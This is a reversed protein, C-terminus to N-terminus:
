KVAYFGIALSPDQLPWSWHCTQNKSFPASPLAVIKQLLIIPASFLWLLKHGHWDIKRQNRKNLGFLANDLNQKM